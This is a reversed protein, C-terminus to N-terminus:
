LQREVSVSFSCHLWLNVRIVVSASLSDTNIRTWRHNFILALFVSNYADVNPVNRVGGIFRIYRAIFNRHWGRPAPQCPKPGGSGAHFLQGGDDPSAVRNARRCFTAQQKENIPMGVQEMVKLMDEWAM